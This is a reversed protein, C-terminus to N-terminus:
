GEGLARAYDGVLLHLPSKDEEVAPFRSRPELFRNDDNITSVEGALAPAASAWFRCVVRQPLTISDGPAHAM